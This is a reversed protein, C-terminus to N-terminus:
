LFGPGGIAELQNLALLRRRCQPCIEQYHAGDELHQDLGLQDLVTKLDDIHMQSAFDSGCRKCLAREGEAGERKYFAVGLNAPRQFIHFFKGFPIYLMTVIVSFAHLIALFSYSHGHMWIASITLMLGTICVSILLILPLFDMAFTQVTLAGPEYMRRKFAFAIGLIIAVACFDLIHFTIWGVLSAAPFTGAHFGFVHAQYAIPNTPDADFHVWGWVLPFTVLCAVICGWSILFHAMWRVHSRKEIFTQFVFTNLFLRLLWLVNKPLDKPRFFLQWGRHWYMNTPPKQLWIAYRYVIGFAAFVSASTYAILAPDIHAFGRSGVYIAAILLLAAAIGTLAAKRDLQHSM